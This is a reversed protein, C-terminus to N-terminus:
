RQRNGNAIFSVGAYGDRAAKSFLSANRQIFAWHATARTSANNSETAM